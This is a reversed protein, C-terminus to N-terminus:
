NFYLLQHLLETEGCNLLELGNRSHWFFEIIKDRGGGGSGAAVGRIPQSFTLIM